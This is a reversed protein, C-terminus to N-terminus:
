YHKDFTRRSIIGKVNWGPFNQQSYEVAKQRAEQRTVDSDESLEYEDEKSFPIDPASHDNASVSPSSPASANNNQSSHSGCSISFSLLFLSLLRKM